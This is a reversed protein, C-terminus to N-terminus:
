NCFYQTPVMSCSWAEIILFSLIGIMALSIGIIIALKLENKDIM